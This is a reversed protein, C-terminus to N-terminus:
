RERDKRAFEQLVRTTEATVQTLRAAEAIMQATAPIYKEHIAKNLDRNEDRLEKNQERELRLAETNARIFYWAIAATLSAAVGIPGWQDFSSFTPVEASTAVAAQGWVVPLTWLFHHQEFM